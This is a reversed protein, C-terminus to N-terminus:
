EEPVNFKGVIAEKILGDKIKRMFMWDWVSWIFAFGTKMM